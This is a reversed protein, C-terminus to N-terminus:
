CPCGRHMVRDPVDRGSRCHSTIPGLQEASELRRKGSGAEFINMFMLLICSWQVDIRAADLNM